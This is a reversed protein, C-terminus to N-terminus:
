TADLPSVTTKVVRRRLLRLSRQGPPPLVAGYSGVKQLLLQAVHEREHSGGGSEPRNCAIWEHLAHPAHEKSPRPVVDVIAGILQSPSELHAREPVCTTAIRDQLRVASRWRHSAIVLMRTSPLAALSDVVRAEAQVDMAATPEDLVLLDADTRFFLRSVKGPPRGEPDAGLRNAFTLTTVSADSEPGVLENRPAIRRRLGEVYVM